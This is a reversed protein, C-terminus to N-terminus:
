SPKKGMAHDAMEVILRIAAGIDEEELVDKLPDGNELYEVAKRYKEILALDLNDFEYSM